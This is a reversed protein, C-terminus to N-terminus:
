VCNEGGRESAGHWGWPDRCWGWPGQGVAGGRPPRLSQLRLAGPSSSGESWDGRHPLGRGDSGPYRGPTRSRGTEMELGTWMRSAESEGVSLPRRM